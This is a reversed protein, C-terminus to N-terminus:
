WMSLHHCCWVHKEKPLPKTLVDAVNYKGEVFKFKIQGLHCRERVFHHIVDIHKTRQSVQSNMMSSLAGQSDCMIHMPTHPVDLDALLQRLWLAERAASSAAQYEAEVTSTAVTTQSKSQWCIPGGYMMFVWGTQSRRTDECTAWDSDCYGVIEDSKGLHIGMHKTAKLYGLLGLLCNWHDVTPCSMYRTLKSVTSTIDPRTNCAIYILAGVISAYPFNATDLSEGAKKLKTNTAMPLGRVPIDHLHHKALLAEIHATQTVRVTGDVQWELKMGCYWDAPGSKGPFKKLIKAIVEKTTGVSSSTVLTDDVVIAIWVKVGKWMGLWLNPDATSGRLGMTRLHDTLKAFWARPAQKLGYLSKTLKCVMEAGGFAYGEPQLMYIEHEVDGHLFATSVDFQLVEWGNYAALALLAKQTTAKSVSAFTEEFDVGYVQRHGGVVLRAKYREPNGDADQKIKLIWKCPLVKMWEERKVLEWTNNKLLSEFESDTAAKWKEGDPRDYAEWITSPDPLPDQQASESAAYVRPGNLSAWECNELDVTARRDHASLADQILLSKVSDGVTQVGVTSDLTHIVEKIWSVGNGNWDGYRDPASRSRAPYRTDGLRAESSPPLDTNATAGGDALQGDLQKMLQDEWQQEVAPSEVMGSEQRPVQHGHAHPDFDSVQEEPHDALRRSQEGGAPVQHGRERHEFSQLPPVSHIMYREVSVIDRVAKVTLQGKDTKALVRYGKSNPEGGLYFAPRARPDLKNRLEEPVRYYVLCGFVRLHSVDPVSGLFRHHPTTQIKKRYEINLLYCAHQMAEAWMYSPFKSQLLLARVINTLSRNVREAKGNQQHAYAISQQHIIGKEALYEHMEANVFEGGRDTRLTHVKEGTLTMWQNLMYQLEAKAHAKSKLVTVGSWKSYDDTVVLVYKGGGLSTVPFECLDCHVLELNRTTQRESPKFPTGINKAQVCIGCTHKSAAMLQSATVNVGTIHGHKVMHALTQFPIHGTRAHLLLADEEKSSVYQVHVAEESHSSTSPMYTSTHVHDDPLHLDWQIEFGIDTEIALFLKENHRNYYQIWNDWIIAWCGKQQLAKVSILTHKCAPVYWVDTIDVGMGDHSTASLTGSGYAPMHTDNACAVNKSFSVFDFLAYHLPTCSIQAGSDLICRRMEALAVPNLDGTRDASPRNVFAVSPSPGDGKYTLRSALERTLTLTVLEESSGGASPGPVAAEAVANVTPARWTGGRGPTPKRKGRGAPNAGGVGAGRGAGPAQDNALNGFRPVFGPKVRKSRCERARHGYFGCKNCTGDFTYERKKGRKSEQVALAKAEVPASSGGKLMNERILLAARVKPMTLDDEDGSTLREVTVEYDSPLANLLAMILATETQAQDVAELQRGLDEVKDVLQSISQGRELKLRGLQGILTQTKAKVCGVYKAKLYKVMDSCGVQEYCHMMDDDSVCQLFLLRANKRHTATLGDAAIPMIVNEYSQGAPSKSALFIVLKREWVDYSIARTLKTPKIHSDAAM